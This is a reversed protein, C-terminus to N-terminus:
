TAYQMGCVCTRVNQTSHALWDLRLGNLPASTVDAILSHPAFMSANGTAHCPLMSAHLPAYALSSCTGCAHELVPGKTCCTSGHQLMNCCTAGHQLMDIM